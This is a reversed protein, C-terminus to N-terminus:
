NMAAMARHAVARGDLTWVLTLGGDRAVTAVHVLDDSTARELARDIDVTPAKSAANRKRRGPGHSM